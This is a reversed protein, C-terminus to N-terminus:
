IFLDVETAPKTPQIPQPPNAILKPLWSYQAAKYEALSCKVKIIKFNNTPLKTVTATLDRERLEEIIISPDFYCACIYGADLKIDSGYGGRPWPARIHNSAQVNERGQHKSLELSYREQEAGTSYAALGCLESNRHVWAQAERCRQEGGPYMREGWAQKAAYYTSTNAFVEIRTDKGMDPAHLKTKIGMEFCVSLLVEASSGIIVVRPKSEDHVPFRASM